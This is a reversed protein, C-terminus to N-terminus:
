ARRHVRGIDDVLMIQRVRQDRIKEDDVHLRQRHRCFRHLAGFFGTMFVSDPTGEDQRFYFRNLFLFLVALLIGALLVIILILLWFPLDNAIFYRVALGMLNSTVISPIVGTAVTFIYRTYKMKRYSGYYCIVGFPILPMIFLLYLLM